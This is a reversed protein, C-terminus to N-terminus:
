ANCLFIFVKFPKKSINNCRSNQSQSFLHLLNCCCFVPFVEICFQPTVLKQKRKDVCFGGFHNLLSKLYNAVYKVKQVLNKAHCVQLSDVAKHLFFLLHHRLNRNILSFDQLVYLIVTLLLHQLPDQYSHNSIIGLISFIFDELHVVVNASVSCGLLKLVCYLVDDTAKRSNEM